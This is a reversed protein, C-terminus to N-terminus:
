AAGEDNGTVGVDIGGRELPACAEPDQEYKEIYDRLAERAVDSTDVDEQPSSKEYAIENLRQKVRDSIVVTVRTRTGTQQSTAM